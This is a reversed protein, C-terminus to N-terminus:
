APTPSTSLVPPWGAMSGPQSHCSCSPGLGAAAAEGKVSGLMGDCPGQYRPCRSPEKM